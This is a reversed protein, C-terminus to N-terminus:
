SAYFCLRPLDLLYAVSAVSNGFFSYDKGAKELEELLNDMSGNIVTSGTALIFDSRAILTENEDHGSQIKVGAALERGIRNDNVDTVEVREGGYHEICEDVIAPQYGIIGLNELEPRNQELWDVIEGACKRPEDDQCHETKEILERSCLVANMAAVRLARHYNTKVPLDLLEALSGQYEGPHDTFAQGRAGQFEAQIMVEEGEALPYDDRGPEGIAERSSLGRAKIAISEQKLELESVVDEFEDLAQPLVDM